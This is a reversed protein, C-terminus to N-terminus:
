GACRSPTSSCTTAPTRRRRRSTPAARAGARRAARDRGDRDFPERTWPARFDRWETLEFGARRLREIPGDEDVDGPRVGRSPAGCRAGCAKPRTRSCAGPVLRRVGRRVAARGPRRDARPVASRRASRGSARAAPRRLLRPDHQRAGGRPEARCRRAARRGRAITTQRREDELRQRLRLKLEGAAKETFTVAVIERVDARGEALM